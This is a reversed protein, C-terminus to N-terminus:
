FYIKVPKMLVARGKDRFHGYFYGSVAPELYNRSVFVASKHGIAVRFTRIFTYKSLQTNGESGQGQRGHGVEQQSSHGVGDCLFGTDDDDTDHCHHRHDHNLM